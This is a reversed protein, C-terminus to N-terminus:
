GLVKTFMARVGEILWCALMVRTVLRGWNALCVSLVNVNARLWKIAKCYYSAVYVLRSYACPV